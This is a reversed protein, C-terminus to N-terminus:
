ARALGHEIDADGVGRAWSMHVCAHAIASQGDPAIALVGVAAKTERRLAACAEEALSQLSAGHPADRYRRLLEYCFVRRMIAEGVGTAVCAGLQPDAYFGAGVMATDGVRGPTKCLVGGTSGAACFNGAADLVVAGVTDARGDQSIKGAKVRDYNRQAKETHMAARDFTGVPGGHEASLSKAFAEVGAGVILSHRSHEMVARAVFVADALNHAAGIAGVAMDRSRMIGADTEYEGLDNLCAGTGANYCPTKELHRVAAVAADVCDGAALAARAAEVAVKVNATAEAHLEPACRGAGGHVLIIPQPALESLESSEHLEDNM